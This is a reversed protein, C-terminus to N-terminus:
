AKELLVMISAKRFCNLLSSYSSCGRYVSLHEDLPYLLLIMLMLKKVAFKTNSQFFYSLLSHSIQKSFNFAASCAKFAGSLECAKESIRGPLLQQLASKGITPM